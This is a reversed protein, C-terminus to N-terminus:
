EEPEYYLHLRDNIQFGLRLYLQLARTNAPMVQLEFAVAEPFRAQQLYEFFRSAIGQSRYEPLIYMEDISIYNGGYENSWYNITLAYGVLQEDVEVLHIAGLEPYRSLQRITRQIKEDTMPKGEIDEAYLAHVFQYLLAEEPPRGTFDRFHIQM